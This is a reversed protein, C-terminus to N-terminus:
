YLPSYELIYDIYNKDLIKLSSINQPSTVSREEVLNRLSKNKIHARIEKIVFNLTELNYKEIDKQKFDEFIPYTDLDYTKTPTMLNNLYSYYIASNSLFGDIGMYVLLPMFSPEAFTFILYSTPHMTKKIKVILEVLDRPHLLLEDSNALIFGTYGIKELKKLCEIRLDIYKSGQIVAIDCEDVNEKAKKLTESVNWKAIEYDVNYSSGENPAIKLEKETFISPTIKEDLKGIRAPGDHSKIEFKKNM